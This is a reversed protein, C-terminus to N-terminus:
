RNQKQLTLRDRRVTDSLANMDHIYKSDMYVGIKFVNSYVDQTIKLTFKEWDLTHTVNDQEGNIIYFKIYESSNINMDNHLTIIDKVRIATYLEELNLIVESGEPTDDMYDTVIYQNWGSANVKPLKTLITEYNPSAYIPDPYVVEEVKDIDQENESYYIYLKPSPAQVNVEMELHYNTFTQGKQEGDDYSIKDRISVAIDLDRFRMFFEMKQNITRLKFLIPLESHANVYNLFSVIDLINGDKDLQYSMDKALQTMMKYPIHFDMDITEVYRHGVRFAMAMYQYLDIQQSRSEVRIKFLFSMDLLMMSTGIFANKVFDKILANKLDGRDLLMDLGFMNTDLTDRDFEMNIKPLIALAPKQVKLDEDFNFHRYDDFVHKGEIHIRKFYKKDFRSLFWGRIYETIVSYTHVTSPMSISAKLERGAM